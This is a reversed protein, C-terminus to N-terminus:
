ADRADAHDGRDQRNLNAPKRYGLHSSVVEDEAVNTRGIRSKDCSSVDLVDVRCLTITTLIRM